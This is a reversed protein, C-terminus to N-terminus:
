SGTAALVAGAALCVLEGALGILTWRRMWALSSWKVGIVSVACFALTGFVSIPVIVDKVGDDCIAATDHPACGHEASSMWNIVLGAGALAVVLLFLGLTTESRMVWRWAKGMDAM